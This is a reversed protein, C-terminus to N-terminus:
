ELLSRHIKAVIKKHATFFGDSVITPLHPEGPMILLFMGPVLRFVSEPATGRHLLQFDNEAVYEGAEPHQEGRDALCLEEGELVMQVDAFERHVEWHQGEAERSAASSVNIWLKGPILEIKGCPTNKTLGPFAQLFERPLIKRAIPSDIHDYIM